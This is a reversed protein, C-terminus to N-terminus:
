FYYIPNTIIKTCHAAFNSFKKTILGHLLDITFQESEFHGIDMIVIQGDADFFEHYKFDATIFVDAGASKAAKLLFSGSGGCVAVKKIPRGLLATHRVCGTQMRDKLHSLMDGETMEDSLDGIAGSGVEPNDHAKVNLIRVDELGLRDAIAQNVGDQLVNDLNTHIAYIAVDAKIAKIIAREVYNKGNIKKLGKFVIPHHAIVMNHGGAVAEDIVEPTADLAILCSRVEMEPSGTILGANDYSEQLHLPAVSELFTTIDKVKM